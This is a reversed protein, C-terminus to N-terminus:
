GGSGAHGATGRRRALEESSPPTDARASEVDSGYPLALVESDPKIRQLGEVVVRDGAALGSNIVQMGGEDEPGVQVDARQVKQVVRKKGTAKDVVLTDKVVYVFKEGQDTGIARQAVEVADHPEGIPLRIRVFLGPALVRPAPNEIIGRLRITGTSPDLRNDTFDITGKHPHNPLGKADIEDALGAMVPVANESQSRFKGERALRRLRLYAREDVDFNIYMPDQTVITTLTTEDAKVLNGVDVMRRSIKGTLPATVRTWDLNLRAVKREAEAIGVSAKAEAYDDSIKDFEEQSITGRTYLASARRYDKGLRTYLAQAKALTAESRDAAAEYPRPDIEFLPDGKQVESGDEFHIQTLYGTVRARVEVTKIADTRGTFDESDTIQKVIPSIVRVDQIEPKAVKPPERQCGAALVLLALAAVLRRGPISQHNM